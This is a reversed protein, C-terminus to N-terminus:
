FNNWMIRKKCEDCEEYEDKKKIWQIKLRLDRFM